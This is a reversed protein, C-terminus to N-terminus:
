RAAAGSDGDNGPTLDALHRRVEAAEPAGIGSYVALASDLHRRAQDAEGLQQLAKAFMVRIRAQEYRGGLKTMIDLAERLTGAADRIQGANLYTQGLSTLCRAENYPDPLAISMRRAELLDRVAEQLRGADRHAEGIHRTLGLVGRARGIHAFIDRAETFTVIADDPRGSKLDTLGVHELATAEAIQDREERSLVLSRSFEARAEDHRDLALYAYGLQVRMRAEARRDGGSQASALGILHVEIWYQFYKRYAFLGWLAECLQWAVEHLGEDHASRVAALLGPLESELWQLAEAPSGYAPSEAQAEDYMPNLRWRGPIVVIDATVAARLYWDLARVVFAKREAMPEADAKERAHVKVLDHFRYRRDSAEQLLSVGALMDLLQAASEEEVALAAAVVGAGFDPGPLLSLLRYLRAAEPPLVQYSMDFVTRVSVDDAISLAGLRNRESLLEDAVRSVPWNAHAALRAAVVCVALPLKGCLHVVSRAADAEATARGTGAIRGFLETASAEDLPGLEVFRAGDMALGIIRWRTTVVVLSPRSQPGSGRRVPSAPGPLLVRVQAATAANDLLMIMRHGTTVSRYLAAQEDLALPIQEPSTGLARLFASLVDGPRAADAPVHGRLDAFLAGGEYQDSIQHLWHSALSTKGVGGVGSVVVVTVRRDQESGSVLSDLLALEEPRGTFHAPPLPLQAPVPRPSPGAQTVSFHVGGEITRAQVASGHVVGGLDNRSQSGSHNNFDPREAPDEGPQSDDRYDGRAM